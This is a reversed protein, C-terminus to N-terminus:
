LRFEDNECNLIRAVYLELFNDSGEVIGQGTMEKLIYEAAQEFLVVAEDNTNVTDSTYVGNEWAGAQSPLVALKELLPVIEKLKALKELGKKKWKYYPAYRRNLLYMIDMISEMAKSICMSASVYDRRAMMRPYNSQAYQSFDHMSQALKIRWIEDPYYAALKERIGTFVGLDDRFVEGNVAQALQYEQVKAYDITFPEEFSIDQALLRNYFDAVSSVGRRRELFDGSMNGVGCQKVLEDYACQLSKGIKAYDEDILWMCFGPAYDHDMSVADDFGFCDSGEGVVGVAIRKEYDGFQTYIMDKGYEEYFKRSREMNSVWIDKGGAAKVASLYKEYVRNYNDNRGTHKYVELLARQYYAAANIYDKEGYYVDGMASLAAGYHFDRGGDEEFLTLAEKIYEAARDKDEKNPLQIMAAGLNALTSAKKMKAGKEKDVIGLALLLVEKAKVYDGIEQYLLGWNNYLSAFLSDDSELCKKYCDEVMSFANLADNHLGFARYANAINLTSTAYSLTEQLGLRELLKQLENCYILAKDKQTTDRCLGIMENLLTILSSTDEENMAEKIKDFLFDEVKDLSVNGYMADYENLVKVIDM